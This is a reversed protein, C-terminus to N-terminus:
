NVKYFQYDRLLIKKNKDDYLQVLWNIVVKYVGDDRYSRLANFLKNDLDTLTSFSVWADWAIIRFEVRNVIEIGTPTRETILIATIYTENPETDPVGWFIRNWVIGTIDTINNLYNIIKWINVSM